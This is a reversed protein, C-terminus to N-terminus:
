FTVIVVISDTYAGPVAAHNFANDPLLGYLTFSLPTSSGSGTGSLIQTGGTGDGWISSYAPSTYLNYQVTHTGSTLLRQTQLGSSGSSGGLGFFAGVSCAVKASSTSYVAGAGPLYAGFALSSASVSCSSAAVSQSTSIAWMAASAVTLFIDRM